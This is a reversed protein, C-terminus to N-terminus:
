KRKRYVALGLAIAGLLMAWEAPEPVSTMPLVETFKVWLTNDKVFLEGNYGELFSAHFISEDGNKLSNYSMLKYEADQAINELSTFEIYLYQKGNANLSGNIAIFDQNTGNIDFLLVSHSTQLNIGTLNVTGFDSDLGIAGFRSIDSGHGLYLVGANKVNAHLEGRGSRIDGLIDIEGRLIQKGYGFMGIHIVSTKGAKGDIITGSFEATAGSVIRSVIYTDSKFATTGGATKITGVGNIGAFDITSNLGQGTGLKDSSLANVILTPNKGDASYMNLSGSAKFNPTGFKLENALNGVSLQLEATGYLNVNGGVTVEEVTTGNQYGGFSLYGNHDAKTETSGVNLNGNITMYLRSNTTNRSQFIFKPTYSGTVFNLDNTIVLGYPSSYGPNPSQFTTIRSSKSGDDNEKYLNQITLSNATYYDEPTSTLAPKTYDPHIWCQIDWAGTGSAMSGDFFLDDTAKRPNTWNTDTGEAPAGSIKTGILYNDAGLLTSAFLASFASFTILKKM